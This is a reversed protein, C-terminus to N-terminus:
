FGQYPFLYISKLIVKYIGERMFSKMLCQGWQMINYVADLQM